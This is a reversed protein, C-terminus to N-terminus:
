KLLPILPYLFRPYLLTYSGARSTEVSICSVEYPCYQNAKAIHTHGIGPRIAHVFDDRLSYITYRSDNMGGWFSSLLAQAEEASEM